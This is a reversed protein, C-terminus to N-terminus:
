RCGEQEIVPSLGEIAGAKRALAIDWALKMDSAASIGEIQTALEKNLADAFDKVSQATLTPKDTFGVLINSMSVEALAADIDLADIAMKALKNKEREIAVQEEPSIDDDFMADAVMKSIKDGLEQAAAELTEWNDATISLVESEGDGFMVDITKLSVLKETM